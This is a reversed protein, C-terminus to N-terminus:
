RHTQLFYQSTLMIKHQKQPTVMAAASGFRDSKRQKVEVFALWQGQQIILDIEGYSSRFNHAVVHWGQEQLYTRALAEAAAGTNKSTNLPKNIKTATM